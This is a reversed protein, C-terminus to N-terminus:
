IDCERCKYGDIMNHLIYIMSYKDRVLRYPEVGGGDGDGGARPLIKDNVPKKSMTIHNYLVNLPLFLCFLIVTQPHKVKSDKCVKVNVSTTYQHLSLSFCM